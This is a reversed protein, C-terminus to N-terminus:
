TPSQESHQEKEKQTESSPVFTAHWKHDIKWHVCDLRGVISQPMLKNTIKHPYSFRSTVRLSFDYAVVQAEAVTITLYVTIYQKPPLFAGIEPKYASDPVHPNDIRLEGDIRMPFSTQNVVDVSVKLNKRGPDDNQWGVKWNDLWVWQEFQAELIDAQRKMLGAQEKIALLTLNAANVGLRGVVVLLGTFLAALGAFFATAGTFRFTWRNIFAVQDKDNKAEAAKKKAETEETPTLPPSHMEVVLPANETGRQDPQAEDGNLGPQQKPNHSPQVGVSPADGRLPQWCFPIWVWLVIALVKRM